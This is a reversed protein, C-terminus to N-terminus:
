ADGIYREPETGIIFIAHGEIIDESLKTCEVIECINKNLPTIGTVKAFQKKPIKHELNM